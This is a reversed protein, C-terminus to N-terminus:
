LEIEPDTIHPRTPSDANFRGSPDNIATLFAEWNENRSQQPDSTPDILNRM